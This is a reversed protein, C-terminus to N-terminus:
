RYTTWWKQLFYLAAILVFTLIFALAINAGVFTSPVLTLYTFGLFVSIYSASLVINDRLSLERVLGTAQRVFLEDPAGGTTVSSDSSVNEDLM